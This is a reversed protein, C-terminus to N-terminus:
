YIHLADMLNLISECNNGHCNYSLIICTILIKYLLGLINLMGEVVTVYGLRKERLLHCLCELFSSNHHM